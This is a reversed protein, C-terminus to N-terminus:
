NNCKLYVVLYGYSLIADYLSLYGIRSIKYRPGFNNKLGVLSVCSYGSTKSSYALAWNYENMLSLYTTYQLIHYTVTLPAVCCFLVVAV